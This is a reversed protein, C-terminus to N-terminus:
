KMDAGVTARVPIGTANFGELCFVNIGFHDPAMRKRHFPYIGCSRCFFHRATHTHFRYETLAEAGSLLKFRSEHVKVMLANKRICISCDCTTLEPFDTEIEFQVAGCHCSGRYRRLPRTGTAAAQSASPASSTNM